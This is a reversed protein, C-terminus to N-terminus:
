TVIPIQINADYNKSKYQCLRLDLTKEVENFIDDEVDKATRNSDGNILKVNTYETMNSFISRVKKLYDDREYNNTKGGRKEIIRRIGIEPSIDLIFVVDPIPAIKENEEKIIEPNLGLAGQYAMNSYYYRDMVVIKGKKLSPTINKKVDIKRDEIFFNSEKQPDRFYLNDHLAMNKFITSHKSNTPEKFAVVDFGLAKLKQKLLEVQTTKGAGDIGEFVILFGGKIKKM